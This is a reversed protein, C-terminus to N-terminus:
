WILKIYVHGWVITEATKRAIRCVRLGNCTLPDFGDYSKFTHITPSKLIPKLPRKTSPQYGNHIKYSYSLKRTPYGSSGCDNDFRVLKKRDASIPSGVDRRVEISGSRSSTVSLQSNRRPQREPGFEHPLLFSNTLSMRKGNSSQQQCEASLQIQINQHLKIENRNSAFAVNSMNNQNHILSQQHTDPLSRHCFRQLVFIIVSIVLLAVMAIIAIFLFSTVELM